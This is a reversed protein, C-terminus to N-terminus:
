GTRRQRRKGVEIFMRSGQTRWAKESVTVQDDLRLQNEQLARFVAYGTMLKTLSAPALREDPNLSAIVSGTQSDIVHYSKAGIVPPSPVPLEAASLPLAVLLTLSLLIKSLVPM